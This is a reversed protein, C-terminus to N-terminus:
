LKYTLPADRRARQYVEWAPRAAGINPPNVYESDVCTPQERAHIQHATLIDRCQYHRFLVGAWYDENGCASAGSLAKIGTQLAGNWGALFDDSPIM